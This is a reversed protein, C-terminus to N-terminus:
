DESYPKPRMAGATKEMDRRVDRMFASLDNGYKRYVREVAQDFEDPQNQTTTHIKDHIKSKKVAIRRKKRSSKVGLRRRM